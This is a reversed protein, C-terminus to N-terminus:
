EEPPALRLGYLMLKTMHSILKERAIRKRGSPLFWQRHAVTSTLLAVLLRSNLEMQDGSFWGRREAEREGLQALQSFIHDFLKKVDTATEEDLTYEAALLAALADPHDRLHDYLDSIVLRMVEEEDVPDIFSREWQETFTRLSDVFPQMVAERFLDTKAPFHRFLVSLSVGAAEAIDDTTTKAYGKASFERVAADLLLQRVERTSRRAMARVIRREM